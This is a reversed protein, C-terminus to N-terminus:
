ATLLHGLHEQAWGISREMDRREVQWSEPGDPLNASPNPPDNRSWCQALYWSLGDGPPAPHRDWYGPTLINLPFPAFQSHIELNLHLEPHYRALLEAIAVQDIDGEGLSCNELALGQPTRIVRYNKFHTTLAYPAMIQALRLPEDMDFALNGTDVTFGFAPSNVRALISSLERVTFDAHNEMAIKLGMDGAAQCAERLIAVADDALKAMDHGADRTFLDGAVCRLLNSGLKRAIELHYIVVRAESVATDYGAEALLRKGKEAMPHWSFISGMGFEIFLGLEGATTRIQALDRDRFSQFPSLEFLVGDLGLQSILQLVGVPDLGSNRLTYSDVGLKM